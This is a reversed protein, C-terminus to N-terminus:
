GEEDLMEKLRKRGIEIEQAPTKQTKKVFAHFILIGTKSKVLYFARYIGDADKIRLEEVGPAVISLSRSVPMALRQGRQLDLIAKGFAKRVETSLSRLVERAKAHFVAPKVCDIDWIRSM